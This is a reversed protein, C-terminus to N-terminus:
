DLKLGIDKGLMATEEETSVVIEASEKAKKNLNELLKVKQRAVNDRIFVMKLPKDGSLLEVDFSQGERIAILANKSFTIMFNKGSKGVPVVNVANKEVMRAM